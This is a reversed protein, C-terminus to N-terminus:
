PLTIMPIMSGWKHPKECLLALFSKYLWPERERNLRKTLM